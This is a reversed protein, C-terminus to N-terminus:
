EKTEEIKGNAYTVLLYLVQCSLCWYWRDPLQGVTAYELIESQARKRAFFIGPLFVLFPAYNGSLWTARLLSLIPNM